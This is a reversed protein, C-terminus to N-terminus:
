RAHGVGPFARLVAARLGEHPHSLVRDVVPDPERQEGVHEQWDAALVRLALDGADRVEEGCEPCILVTIDVTRELRELRNKLGM